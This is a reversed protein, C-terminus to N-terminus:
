PSHGRRKSEGRETVAYLMRRSRECPSHTLRMEKLVADGRDAQARQSKRSRHPHKRSRSRTRPGRQLATYSKTVNKRGGISIWPATRVAGCRVM